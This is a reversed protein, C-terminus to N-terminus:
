VQCIVTVVALLDPAPEDLNGEVSAERAHLLDKLTEVAPLGCGCEM